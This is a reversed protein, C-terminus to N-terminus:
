SEITINTVNRVSDPMRDSIITVYQYFKGDESTHLIRSEDTPGYTEATILPNQRTGTKQEGYNVHPTPHLPPDLVQDSSDDM